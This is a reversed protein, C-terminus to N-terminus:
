RPLRPIPLQWWPQVDRTTPRARGLMNRTERAWRPRRGLRRLLRERSWQLQARAQPLYSKGTLYDAVEGHDHFPAAPYLPEDLM